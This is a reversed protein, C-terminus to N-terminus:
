GGFHWGRSAGAKVIELLLRLGSFILLLVGFHYRFRTSEGRRRWKGVRVQGARDHTRAPTM